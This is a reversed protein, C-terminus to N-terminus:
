ERHGCRAPPRPYRDYGTLSVVRGHQAWPVDLESFLKEEVYARQVLEALGTVVSLTSDNFPIRQIQSAPIPHVPSSEFAANACLVENGALNLDCVFATPDTVRRCVMQLMRDRLAEVTECKMTEGSALRASHSYKWLLTDRTGTVTLEPHTEPESAHTIILLLPVGTATRIRLCATDPSEIDRTRYLEAEVSQLPEGALFCLLNLHHAFANHFPADLIWADGVRQRGAWSNRTYYTDPRPWIGRIRLSRLQGLRGDAVLRKMWHTVECYLDQFGVAVFKGTAREAAQMARVDQIVAAAPKEVFVNAGARLADITMPAHFHIGTPIVCLDTHRGHAALMARHDKFLECGLERLCQCKEPEDPQNIVTAARLRVDGRAVAHLLNDYHVRGFGSIGILCVNTMIAPLIGTPASKM